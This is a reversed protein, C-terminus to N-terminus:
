RAELLEGGRVTQWRWACLLVAHQRSSGHYLGGEPLAQRRWAGQLPWHWMSRAELLEGGPM